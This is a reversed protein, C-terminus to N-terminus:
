LPQNSAYEILINHIIGYIIGAILGAIAGIKWSKM